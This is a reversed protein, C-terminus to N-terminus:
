LKLTLAFLRGESGGIEHRYGFDIGGGAPTLLGVGGSVYQAGAINDHSYGARLPIAGGVLYELGARYAVQTSPAAAFDARVDVVATLPGFVYAAGAGFYRRLEPHQTDILNHGSVALNLSDSLRLLLGTDLTIANAAGSVLLHKATLGFHLNESVPAALGLSTLHATHRDDGRGLSIFDYGVGGALQNTQSDVISLGAFGYKTQSDWAGTLDVAFVRRVSMGAPNGGLAESASGTALSAGGMGFSRARMVDTLGPQNQAFCFTSALLWSLLLARTM